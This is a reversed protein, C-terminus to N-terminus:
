GAKNRVKEVRQEFRVGVNVISVLLVFMILCGVLLPGHAWDLRLLSSKSVAARQQIRKTRSFYEVLTWIYFIVACGCSIGGLARVPTNQQYLLAVGIAGVYMGKEAYHLLTREAAFIAKPDLNEMDKLRHGEGTPATIAGLVKPVSYDQQEGHDLSMLAQKATLPEDLNSEQRAKQEHWERFDQHWHPLIPVREPHLFAMGHQFKSFKHVQIAEIDALTRRLWPPTEIVNQLKIELIAFPFRYIEDTKLLDSGIHCWPESPHASPMFENLLTMQTDLSVRVDNSSSLQFACRYYSTRLIPQL